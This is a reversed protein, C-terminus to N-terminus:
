PRPRDDTFFSGKRWDGGATSLHPVGGFGRGHKRNINSLIFRCMKLAESLYTENGTAGYLYFLTLATEAADGMRVGYAEPPYSTYVGGGESRFRILFDAARVVAALYRDDGTVEYLKILGRAIPNVHEPAIWLAPEAYDVGSGWGDFFPPKGSFVFMGETFAGWVLKPFSVGSSNTWYVRRGVRKISIYNNKFSDLWRSYGVQIRLSWDAALRAAMLYTENGTLEYLDVGIEMFWGTDHSAVYTELTSEAGYLAAWRYRRTYVGSARGVGGERIFAMGMPLRAPNNPIADDM